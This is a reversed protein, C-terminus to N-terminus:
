QPANPNNPFVGPPAYWDTLDVNATDQGAVVEIVVPTHDTCQANLGCLVAQTFGGAQGTTNDYAFVTYRGPPLGWMKYTRVNGGEIDIYYTQRTPDDFVVIQLDPVVEGPFGLRGSISGTGEPTPEDIAPSTPTELPLFETPIVQTAWEAPPPTVTELPVQMPTAEVPLPTLMVQNLAEAQSTQTAQLSELTAALGLERQSPESTNEQDEPIVARCFSASLFLTISLILLPFYKGNM